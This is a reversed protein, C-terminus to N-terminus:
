FNEATVAVRFAYLKKEGGSNKLRLSLVSLQVNLGTPRSNSM